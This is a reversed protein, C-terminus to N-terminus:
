LFKKLINEIWFIDSKFCQLMLAFNSLWNMIIEGVRLQIKFDHDTEQIFIDSLYTVSFFFFM